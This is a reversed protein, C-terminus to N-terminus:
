IDSSAIRLARSAESTDDRSKSKLLDIVISIPEVSLACNSLQRLKPLNSFYLFLSLKITKFKNYVNQSGIM